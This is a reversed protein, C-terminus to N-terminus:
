IQHNARVRGDPNVSARIKRLREYAAPEFFTTADTSDEAFNSYNRGNRWPALSAMLSEAQVALAKEEEPGGMPVGAAFALFQGDFHSLAGGGAAPRALAGGLQRLEVLLLSSGSEAGAGDVFADIAAAPLSGLMTTASVVPTPGEPDGHLRVLAAAPQRVFTDMEPHLARLPALIREATEDDGLVAGDIAVVQRGRLPEPVEEIPPLQLIRFSTTVEDPADVAWEAWRTLVRHAEHWDWVLWGAYATAIPHLRMELTTVVGFNGGGGRVAWFLDTEEEASARVFRGDPLVLEVATLNNTQMGLARAYWGIGGGLSYGTVGVDPSSGHLAMLGYPAVAEVVDLWLAGAGVRAVRRVPDVEVSRMASTRLLVADHLSGLPSANHGTGQPVVPVGAAGTLAMVAVVEEATAPYVVAAPRQDVTAQWAQRAADYGADGPVHIAGGCAERLAELLATDVPPQAFTYTSM